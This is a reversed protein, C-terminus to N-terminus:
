INNSWKYANVFNNININKKKNSLMISQVYIMVFSNYEDKKNININKNLIIKRHKEKKNLL